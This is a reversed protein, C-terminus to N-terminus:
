VNVMKRKMRGPSVCRVFGSEEGVSEAARTLDEMSLCYNHFWRDCWGAGNEEDERSGRGGCEACVFLSAPMVSAATRREERLMKGEAKEEEVRKRKELRNVRKAKERRQLKEEAAIAQARKKEEAVHKRKEVAEKKEIEM